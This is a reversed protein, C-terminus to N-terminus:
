VAVLVNIGGVLVLIGGVEVAVLTGVRVGVM